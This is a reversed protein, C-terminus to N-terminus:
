HLRQAKIEAACAFRYHSQGEARVKVELDAITRREQAMAGRVFRVAESEAHSWDPLEIGLKDQTLKGGEFMDFFFMM